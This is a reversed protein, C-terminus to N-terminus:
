AGGAAAARPGGLAAGRSSVPSHGTRLAAGPQGPPTILVACCAHGVVREHISGLLWRRLGGVRDAGVVILDAAWAAAQEAITRGPDAHSARAWVVEPAAPLLPALVDEVRQGVAAEEIRRWAARSAAHARRAPPILSTWPPSPVDTVALVRVAAQPWRRLTLRVQEEWRAPERGHVAILVRRPADTVDSRDDVRDHIEM